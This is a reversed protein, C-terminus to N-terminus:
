RVQVIINKKLGYDSGDKKKLQLTIRHKGPNMNKLIFMSQNANMKWKNNVFVAIYGDKNGPAKTLGGQFSFRSIINEFYIKQKKVHYNVAWDKDMLPYSASVELVQSDQLKTESSREYLKTLTFLTLVIIVLLAGSYIRRNRKM